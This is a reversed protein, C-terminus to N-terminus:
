ERSTSRAPRRTGCWCPWTSRCAPSTPSRTPRTSPWRRSCRSSATRSSGSASSRSRATSTRGACWTSATPPCSRAGPRRPLVRRPAPEARRHPDLDGGARRAADDRVGGARGDRGRDPAQPRRRPGHLVRRPQQRLVGDVPGARAAAPERGRGDRAAAPQLAAVVARPRPLPRRVEGPPGAGRRRARVAAGGRVDRARSPRRPGPRRRPQLRDHIETHCRRTFPLHAERRCRFGGRAAAM